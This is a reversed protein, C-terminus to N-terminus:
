RHQAQFIVSFEKGPPKQFVVPRWFADTPIEKKSFNGKVIKLTMPEGANFNRRKSSVKVSVINQLQRGRGSLYFEGEDSTAMEKAVATAFPKGDMTDKLEFTLVFSKFESCSLNKLITKSYSGSHWKESFINEFVQDNNDDFIAKVKVDVCTTRYGYCPLSVYEIFFVIDLMRLMEQVSFPSIDGKPDEGGCMAGLRSFAQNIKDKLLKLYSINLKSGKTRDDVLVEHAM